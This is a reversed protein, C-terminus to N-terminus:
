IIKVMITANWPRCPRSAPMLLEICSSLGSKGTYPAPRRIALSFVCDYNCKKKSVVLQFFLAPFVKNMNQCNDLAGHWGDWKTVQDGGVICPSFLCEGEGM